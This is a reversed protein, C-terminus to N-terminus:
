LDFERDRLTDTAHDAADAFTHGEEGNCDPCAYDGHEACSGDDDIDPERRRTTAASRAYLTSM